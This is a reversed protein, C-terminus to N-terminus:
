DLKVSLRMFLKEAGSPLTYSVSSGPNIIVDGSDVGTWKDLDPSTEITYNTEYVGTYNAGIPWTIQGTADPTPLTTFSNGSAGMFYEIGNEVGDGDHDQDLTQGPANTAVWASFGSPPTATVTLTGTGTLQPISTGSAASGAAKYVGAPQQIGGIFLKEVTDTGSFSLDLTAGSAAIRVSSSQNNTNPIAQSLLGGNVITDGSYDNAATLFATSTGNKILGAPAFYQSIKGNITVPADGNGTLTLDHYMILDLDIEFSFIGSGTKGADIAIEPMKGQLDKTFILDLGPITAAQDSSGNFTGSLILKNLMFEMGTKRRLDNNATYSSSFVPFELKAGVFGDSDLLFKENTTGAEYWNRTGTISNPNNNIVINGSWDNFVGPRFIHHNFINIPEEDLSRGLIAYRPKDFVAEHDTLDRKMEEIRTANAPNGVVNTNEAIDDDADGAAVKYLEYFSPSANLNRKNVLKYDGKIVSFTGRWKHVLAEHPSATNIGNLYPILNVGDIKDDNAGYTGGALAFATPLIDVCHVAKHYITGRKAPDIGAGAIIMPVRIGGELPSGKFQSLKGNNTGNESLPAGSPRGAVGGNDNLFVVLTNDTISDSTNGDGNPDELTDMLRGIERDMTIMMSAVQKRYSPLGAIAPDNFDPSENTWPKHPAPHAVYLCFPDSDNYHKKVFDVSKNGFITTIYQGNYDNEVVTDTKNGNPLIFAERLLTVQRSGDWNQGAYTGVTYDRSGDWMGFFEDIGQNQPRNGLRGPIDETQGLHWKGIAGTNYGLGKFRDWMTESEVPIGEHVESDLYLDNGVSEAGVRQQYGGTVLATRTPQCNAAVHARTLIIGRAALADLHPTKVVSPATGSLGDMFSFDAYGADDSIIVIVNPRTGSTARISTIKVQISASGKLMGSDTATATITHTGLALNSYSISAGNGIPGNVNSAWSISSSVDGDQTDDATATFSINTGTTTSTDNAPATITVMPPTASPDFVTLTIASSGSLSGSDTVSATITHTGNALASTSISAGTGLAGNLNSSWSINESINGDEADDATATFSVNTGPNVTTNNAPTTITTTPPLNSSVTLVIADTGVLSGSDTVSATITHTGASLTSTNISGGTGTIAGDIDSNWTIQDTLDDDETDFATGTFNVNSGTIVTSSDAPATISVAPATNGVPTSLTAKFYASNHSMPTDTANSTRAYFGVATVGDMTIASSTDAISAVGNVLPTFAFWSAGAPNLLSFDGTSNSGGTWNFSSSAYFQGGKRILFRFSTTGNNTRFGGHALGTLNAGAPITNDWMVMSSFVTAGTSAFRIRDSNSNNQIQATNATINPVGGETAASAASFMPSFSAGANPYYSAGVSPNADTNIDFTTSNVSLSQSNSVIDTANPAELDGAALTGWQITVNQASATFASVMLLFALPLLTTPKLKQFM